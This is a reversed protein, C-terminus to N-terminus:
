SPISRSRDRNRSYRGQRANAWSGQPPFKVGENMSDLSKAQRMAEKWDNEIRDRLAKDNTIRYMALFALRTEIFDKFGETWKGSDFGYDADNSVYRVYLPDVDTWWYGAEDSFQQATMADGFREDASLTSLRLFDDPKAYAKTWGWAPEIGLEAELEVARNAFNWDGRELCYSVIKNQAGWFHELIRAPERNETLASLSREGMRILAGNFIELKLDNSIAM